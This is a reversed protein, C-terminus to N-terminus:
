LCVDAVSLRQQLVNRVMERGSIAMQGAKVAAMYRQSILGTGGEYLLLKDYFTQQDIHEGTIFRIV